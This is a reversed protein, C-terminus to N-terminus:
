VCRDHVGGDSLRCGWRGFVGVMCVGMIPYMIMCVGMQDQVGEESSLMFWACGMLNYVSVM